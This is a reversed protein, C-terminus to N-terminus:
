NDVENGFWVVAFSGLMGIGIANWKNKWIGENIIVANHGASHKWSELATEPTALYNRGGHAIEYGNGNYTTLERPKNWMCSAQSHDSTYCCASWKGKNSWSHMNCNRQFTFNDQLDKAHTQAVITLSKSIPIRQLGKEQRYKMLLEYLKNEEVTLVQSHSYLSILCCVILFFINKKM